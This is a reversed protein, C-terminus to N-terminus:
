WDSNGSNRSVGAGLEFRYEGLSLSRCCNARSYCLLHRQDGFSQVDFRQAVVSDRTCLIVETDDEQQM